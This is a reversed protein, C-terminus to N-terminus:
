VNKIKMIKFWMLKIQERQDPIKVTGNSLITVNLGNYSEASVNFTIPISKSLLVHWFVYTNINNLGDIINIDIIINQKIAPITPSLGIYDGDWKVLENTYGSIGRNSACANIIICIIAIILHRM